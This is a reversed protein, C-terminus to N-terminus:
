DQLKTHTYPTRLVNTTNPEWCTFCHFCIRNELGIWDLVCRHAMRWVIIVFSLSVVVFLFSFGDSLFTFETLNKREGNEFWRWSENTEIRYFKFFCFPLFNEFKMNLKELKKKKQESWSIWKSNTLLYNNLLRAVRSETHMRSLRFSLLFLLDLADTEGKWKRWDNKTNKAEVVVVIGKWTVFLEHGKTWRHSM